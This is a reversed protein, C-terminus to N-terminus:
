EELLFRMYGMNSAHKAVSLIKENSKDGGAIMSIDWFEQSKMDTEFHHSLRECEEESCDMWPLFHASIFVGYIAFRSFHQKFAEYSYVQLRDDTENCDLIEKLCKLLNSHYYQLLEEWSQERIAASTNMYLFFSLDFAPSGYRVEQFDIMRMELPKKTTEDYRFLVNNRNYDGHQIVSYPKDDRRLLDLIKTPCNQYKRRLVEMEEKFKGVLADPRRDLFDLFRTLGIKHLIDYLNKDNGPDQYSLPVIGEVLKDLKDPNEIRMAYSLAHYESIVKLMFFLHDLDLELRSTTNEFGFPSINEMVLVSEPIDSLAPVKGYYSYYVKPAWKRWEISTKRGKLFNGFAPIVKGYIFVENGFQTFGKSWTRFDESGKMLKVILDYNKRERSQQCEVIISLKFIIAMFGNLQPSTTAKSEVLDCNAFEENEALILRTLEGTIFDKQKNVSAM